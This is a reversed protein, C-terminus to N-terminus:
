IFGRIKQWLLLQAIESDSHMILSLFTEVKDHIQEISCRESDRYMLYACLCM